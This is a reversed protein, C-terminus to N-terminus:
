KYIKKMDREMEKLAKLAARKSINVEERARHEYIADRAKKMYLDLEESSLNLLRLYEPDKHLKEIVDKYEDDCKKM